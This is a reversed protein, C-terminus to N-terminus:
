FVWTFGLVPGDQTVDWRYTGANNYDVVLYRYGLNLAKNGKKGMHRNFFVSANWGTDSDGAVVVDGRLVMFWKEGLDTRFRAGVFWDTWNESVGIDDPFPPNPLGNVSIDQNQYRAGGIAEWKETLRYGVWAEVLWIDVEMNLSTDQPLPPPLGIDMELSLYTPDIVFIWDGVWFETHVSAAFNLNAFLDSFSADIDLPPLVGVTSTGSISSGWLYPALVIKNDKDWATQASASASTICLAVVALISKFRRNKRSIM